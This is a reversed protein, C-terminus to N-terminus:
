LSRSDHDCRYDRRARQVSINGARGAGAGHRPDSEGRRHPHNGRDARQPRLLSRDKHGAAACARQTGQDAGACTEFGSAGARRRADPDRRGGRRGTEHVRIRGAPRCRRDGRDGRRQCLDPHRQQHYGGRQRHGRHNEGPGARSHLLVPRGAFLIRRGRKLQQHGIASGGPSRHRGSSFLRYPNLMVQYQMTTGGLGSDDAVGPVARYRASSCGSRITKLEQPTRDPSVLVYRYILGSPSFLPSVGPTIGNPLTANAMREFAQERAFYPDTEYEFNMELASLGYLSISRLAEIKPIGNMEVELPISILREVEEAAHGPWQTIIEVHPPSLDPYADIPLKQFSVAGWFMLALAAMLMVFRQSLAFSVIRAIM